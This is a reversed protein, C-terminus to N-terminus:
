KEEEVLTFTERVQHLITPLPESDTTRVRLVYLQYGPGQAVMTKALGDGAGSWDEQFLFATQGEWEIEKVSLVQPPKASDHTTELMVVANNLLLPETPGPAWWLSVEGGEYRWARAGATQDGQSMSEVFMQPIRINAGTPLVDTMDRFPIPDPQFIVTRDGEVPLASQVEVKLQWDGTSPALPLILPNRAAFLNGEGPVLDFFQWRPLGGPGM